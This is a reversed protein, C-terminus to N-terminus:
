LKKRFRLYVVEPIITNGWYANNKDKIIEWSCDMDADVSLMVPKEDAYSIHCYYTSDYCGALLLHEKSTSDLKVPVFFRYVIKDGEVEAKFNEISKIGYKKNDVSIHLFYGYNKLNSFADKEIKKMEKEEIIRNKNKDFDMLISASFMEDFVWTITIGTSDKNFVFDFSNEIFIHPHSFIYTNCLFLLFFLLLKKIRHKM